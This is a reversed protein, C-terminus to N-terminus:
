LLRAAIERRWLAYGDANLHLRDERYLEPRPHGDGDLMLAHVDIFQANPLGAIRDRILTNAERIDPMLSLRLPSPKISVYAIHTEPQATRVGEFFRTFSEAVQQPTAGEALDNEGAYLVVTRPRYALVLRRLHETCDSLRSGGFGRKVVIPLKDFQTELGDWLRISSSGVFVVGGPHPPNERDAADFARFADIWPLDTRDMRSSADEAAQVTPGIYALAVLTAAVSAPLVLIRRLRATPQM